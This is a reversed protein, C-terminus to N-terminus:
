GAKEAPNCNKYVPHACDPGFYQQMEEFFSHTPNVPLKGLELVTKRPIIVENRALSAGELEAQCFALRHGDTAVVRVVNGETVLLLGNLYMGYKEQLLSSLGAARTTGYSQAMSRAPM